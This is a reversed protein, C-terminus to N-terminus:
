LPKDIPGAFECDLHSISLFNSKIHQCSDVDNICLYTHGPRIFIETIYEKNKDKIWYYGSIIPKNKTYQLM